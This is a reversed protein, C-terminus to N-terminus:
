YNRRRERRQRVQREIADLAGQLASPFQEHKETAAIHDSKMYVVITVEHIYPTGRSQAPQKFNVVAGTIDNHGETLDSLREAAIAFFENDSKKVDDLENNFEIPFHEREM